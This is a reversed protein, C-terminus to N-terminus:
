EMTYIGRDVIEGDPGFLKMVDNEGLEAVKYTGDESEVYWSRADEHYVMSVKTKKERNLDEIDFRNRTATIKYLNGDKEVVQVEKETDGMAMPNSGTWFEVTNLIVFDVLGAIGYIPVIIMVWTVASRVFKNEVTGNFAYLKKTLHFSGYCGNLFVVALAIILLRRTWLRIM